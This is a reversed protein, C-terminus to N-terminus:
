LQTVVFVTRRNQARGEVTANTAVPKTQGYGRHSLRSSSIGLEYLL